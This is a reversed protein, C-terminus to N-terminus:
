VCVSRLQVGGWSIASPVDRLRASLYRPNSGALAGGGKALAPSHSPSATWNVPKPEPRKYVELRRRYHLVTAQFVTRPLTLFLIFPDTALAALATHTRFLATRKVRLSASLKLAGTSTHLHVRIQADSNSHLFPSLARSRLHYTGIGLRDNSRHCTFLVHSPSNTPLVMFFM